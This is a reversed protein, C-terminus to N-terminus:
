RMNPWTSSCRQYTSLCERTPQILVIQLGILSKLLAYNEGDKLHKAIFVGTCWRGYTYWM